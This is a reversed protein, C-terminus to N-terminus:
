ITENQGLYRTLISTLSASFKSRPFVEDCGAERAEALRATQVHPGFAIVTPRPAAPLAALADAVSLGPMTLDLIILRCTPDAAKQTAQALNGEVEVRFGLEVATGTIKSAFFLDRSVLIARSVPSAYNTTSPMAALTRPHASFRDLPSDVNDRDNITDCLASAAAWLAPM